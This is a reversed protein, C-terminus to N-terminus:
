DLQLKSHKTAELARDYKRLWALLKPDVPKPRIFIPEGANPFAKRVQEPTPLGHKKM